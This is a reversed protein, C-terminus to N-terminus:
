CPPCRAESGSTSTPTTAGNGVQLTGGTYNLTGLMNYDLPTGGTSRQVLVITGGSMNM